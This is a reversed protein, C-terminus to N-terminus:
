GGPDGVSMPVDFDIGDARLHVLFPSAPVADLDIALVFSYPVADGTCALHIEAGMTVTIADDRIDVTHLHLPCSGSGTGTARLVLEREFEVGPVVELGLARSMAHLEDGTSAIAADDDHGDYANFLAFSRATALLRWGHGRTADFNTTWWVWGWGVVVLAALTALVTLATRM